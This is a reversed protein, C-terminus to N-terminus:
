PERARLRIPADEGGGTQFRRVDPVPHNLLVSVHTSRSFKPWGLCIPELLGLSFEGIQIRLRHLLSDSIKALRDSRSCNHSVTTSRIGAIWEAFRLVTADDEGILAGPNAVICQCQRTALSSFKADSNRFAYHNRTLQHLNTKVEAHHFQDAFNWVRDMNKSWGDADIKANVSKDGSRAFFLGDKNRTTGDLGYHLQAVFPKCFDGRLLRALCLSTTTVAFKLPSLTPHQIPRTTLNAVQAMLSRALYDVGEWACFGVDAFREVIGGLLNAANLSLLDTLGAAGNEDGHQRVFQIAGNSDVFRVRRLRTGDTPFPVLATADVAAGATHDRGTVHDPGDIDAADPNTDAHNWTSAYRVSDM